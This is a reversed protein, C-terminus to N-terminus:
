ADANKASTKGAPTKEQLPKTETAKAEAIAKEAPKADSPVAEKAPKEQSVKTKAADSTKLASKDPAKTDAPKAAEKSPEQVPKTKAEPKDTNESAEAPKAAEKSPKEIKLKEVPFGALEAKVTGDDYKVATVKIHHPPNKIGCSWINKNLEDGLKIDKSKMHRVLFARAANIAKKARRYKPAKLYEKRLPINYTREMVQKATEKKAM